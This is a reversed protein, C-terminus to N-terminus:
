NIDQYIVRGNLATMAIKTDRIRAPEISFIDDSLIVFDALKGVEISGKEKEQFEAFAAALTHAHVAEEVTIGRKGGANVAAHITLLPNVDTIAADSGFALVAGGDLMKRFDDAVGNTESYFLYPQMSAIAKIRSLRAIDTARLNHAHEIRHRLPVRVETRMEKANRVSTRTGIQIKEFADLVTANAKEGIAHIMVQVGSRDAAAIEKALDADTEDGEALGKVCGNRVMADGSAAKAGLAALRPWASLSVCDYVRTKLKGKRNLERLVDALDDSHMDQVSTIGFSTIYNTATEVLESLNRTHDRPVVRRVAEISMGTLIGDTSRVGALKLAATNAYAIKLDANYVFVPNDPSVRDIEALTPPNPLSWKSGLIWRGKPLFRAFYAIREAMEGATKAGGLDLSSFLNGISTLHVHADNFGPLVLKGKTDLVETGKGAFSQITKTTGVAVIRGDDVAIAEARPNAKDMTRVNANIIILDVASSQGFISASFFLLVFFARLHM